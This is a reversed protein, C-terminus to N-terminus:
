EKHSCKPIRGYSKSRKIRRRSPNVDELRREQNLLSLNSGFHRPTAPFTILSDEMPADSNMNIGEFEYTGMNWSPALVSSSKSRKMELTQPESRRAAKIVERLNSLKRKLRRRAIDERLFYICITVIGLLVLLLILEKVYNRNKTNFSPLSNRELFLSYRLVCSGPNVHDDREDPCDVGLYNIQIDISKSQVPPSGKAGGKLSTEESSEHNGRCSWPEDEFERDCIASDLVIPCAKDPKVPICKMFLGKHCEPSRWNWWSSSESSYSEKSWSLSKLTSKLIYQSGSNSKAGFPNLWSSVSPLLSFLILCNASPTKM